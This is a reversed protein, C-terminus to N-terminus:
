ISWQIENVKIKLDEIQTSLELKQSALDKEVSALKETVEKCQGEIMTNAEKAKELQQELEM